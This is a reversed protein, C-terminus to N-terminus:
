KIIIIPKNATKGAVEFKFMGGFPLKKIQTWRLPKEFEVYGQIHPTGTEEGVESQFVLYTTPWEKVIDYVMNDDGPPNNWTFCWHKAASEQPKKKAKKTPPELPLDDETPRKRKKEKKKKEPKKVEKPILDMLEQEEVSSLLSSEDSSFEQTSQTSM